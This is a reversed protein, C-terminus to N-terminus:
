NFYYEIGGNGVPVRFCGLNKPWNNESMYGGRKIENLDITDSFCKNSSLRQMYKNINKYEWLHKKNLSFLNYFICDFRILHPYVIVDALTIYNGLIYNNTLINDLKDLYNFVANFHTEYDTQTKAHGARYTGTCIEKSFEECFADIIQQMEIPYYDIKSTLVNFDSNFIKIIESSENNVITKTKSDYLVPLTAHSVYKPDVLTYLDSLKKCDPIPSADSEKYDYDLVWGSFKYAPDCYVIKIFNDLSKLNRMIEVRHAFPCSKASFLYYRAVEPPYITNQAIRSHYSTSAGSTM